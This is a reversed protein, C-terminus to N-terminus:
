RADSRSDVQPRVAGKDSKLILGKGTHEAAYAANTKAQALSGLPPLGAGDDHVHQNILDVCTCALDLANAAANERHRTRAIRLSLNHASLHRLSWPSLKVILQATSALSHLVEFKLELDGPCFQDSQFM